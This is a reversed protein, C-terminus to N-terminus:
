RRHLFSGPPPAALATEAGSGCASLHANAPLWRVGIGRAVAM